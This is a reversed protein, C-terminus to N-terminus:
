TICKEADVKAATGRSENGRPLPAIPCRAWLNRPLPGVFSSFAFLGLRLCRGLWRDLLLSLRTHGLRRHGRLVDEVVDLCVHEAHGWFVVVLRVVVIVGVIGLALRRVDEVRADHM